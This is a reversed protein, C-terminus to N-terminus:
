RYLTVYVLYRISLILEGSSPCMVARFMYLVSIFMYSFFFIHEELQNNVFIIGLNMTLLVYFESPEDEPLRNYICTYHLM